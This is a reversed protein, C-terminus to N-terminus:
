KCGELIIPVLRRERNNRGSGEPRVLGAYDSRSATPELRWVRAKDKANHSLFVDYKFPGRM